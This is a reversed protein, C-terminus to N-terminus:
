DIRERASNAVSGRMECVTQASCRFAELYFRPRALIINLPQPRASPNRQWHVLAHMARPRTHRRTVRVHHPHSPWWVAANSNSDRGRCRWSSAAGERHAEFRFIFVFPSRSSLLGPRRISFPIFTHPQSKPITSASQNSEACGPTKKHAVIGPAIDMAEVPGKSEVIDDGPLRGGPDWISLAGVSPNGQPTADHERQHNQPPMELAGEDRRPAERPLRVSKREGENPRRELERKRSLAETNCEGKQPLAEQPPADVERGRGAKYQAWPVLAEPKAACATEAEDAPGVGVTGEALAPAACVAPLAGGRKHLDVCPPDVKGVDANEAVRAPRLLDLDEPFAPSDGPVSPVGGAEQLDKEHPSSPKSPEPRHDETACREAAAGEGHSPNEHALTDSPPPVPPLPSLSSSSNQPASPAAHLESGVCPVHINQEGELQLASGICTDPDVIVVGLNPWPDPRTRAGEDFIPRRVQHARVRAKPVVSAPEWVISGHRQPNPLDPPRAHAEGIPTKGELAQASTLGRQGMARQSKKGPLSESLGEVGTLAQIQEPPQHIPHQVAENPPPPADHPQPELDAGHDPVPIAPMETDIALSRQTSAAEPTTPLPPSSTLLYAKEPTALHSVGPEQLEVLPDRDGEVSANEGAIGGEELMVEPGTGKLHMPLNAIPDVEEGPTSDPGAHAVGKPTNANPDGPQGEKLDPEVRDNHTHAGEKIAGPEGLIASPETGVTQAHVIPDPTQPHQRSLVAEASIIQAHTDGEEALSCGEGELDTAHTTHVPSTEPEDPVGSPEHAAPATV